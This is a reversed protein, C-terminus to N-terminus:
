NTKGRNWALLFRDAHAITRNLSCLDFIPLKLIDGLYLEDALSLIADFLPNTKPAANLIETTLVLKGDAEDENSLTQGNLHSHLLTSAQALLQARKPFTSPPPRKENLEEITSYVAILRFAEQRNEAVKLQGQIPDSAGLTRMVREDQTLKAVNHQIRYELQSLYTREDSSLLLRGIAMQVEETLNYHSKNRTLCFITSLLLERIVAESRAGMTEQVTDTLISNLKSILHLEECQHEQQHALQLDKAALGLLETRKDVLNQHIQHVYAAFEPASELEHPALELKLLQQAATAASELLTQALRKVSQYPYPHLANAATMKLRTLSPALLPAFDRKALSGTATAATEVKSM